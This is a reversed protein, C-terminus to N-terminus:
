ISLLRKDELKMKGRVLVLALNVLIFVYFSWMSASVSLCSIFSFVILNSYGKIIDKSSVV